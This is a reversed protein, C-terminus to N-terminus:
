GSGHRDPSSLDPSEGNPKPRPTLGAAIAIVLVMLLGALTFPSLVHADYLAGAALPGLVRALSASSQFAGMVLGREEAAASLSVLGLMSPYVLARGVSAVALPVLLLGVTPMWPV